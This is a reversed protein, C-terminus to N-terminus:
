GFMRPDALQADSLYVVDDAWILQEFLQALTPHTLNPQCVLHSRYASFHRQFQDPRASVVLGDELPEFGLLLRERHHIM